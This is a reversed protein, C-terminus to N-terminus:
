CNQFALRKLKKVFSIKTSSNIVNTDMDNYLQLKVAALEAEEKSNAMVTVINSKFQVFWKPVFSTNSM